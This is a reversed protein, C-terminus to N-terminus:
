VPTALRPMSDRRPFLLVVIWQGLSLILKKGLSFVLKRLLVFVGVCIMWVLFSGMRTTASSQGAGVKGSFLSFIYLVLTNLILGAILLYSLIVTLLSGKQHLLALIRSSLMEGFNWPALWEPLTLSQNLAILLYLILVIAVGTLYVNFKSMM